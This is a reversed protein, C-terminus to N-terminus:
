LVSSLFFTHVLWGLLFFLFLVLATQAHPISWDIGFFYPLNNILPFFFTFALLGWEVKWITSLLVFSLIIVLPIQYSYVLPVYRYYFLGLGAMYLLTLVFLPLRIKLKEKAM